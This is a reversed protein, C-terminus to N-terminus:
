EVIQGRTVLSEFKQQERAVFKNQRAFLYILIAMGVIFVVDTNRLAKSDVFIRIIYGITVVTLSLAYNGCLEKLIVLRERRRLWGKNNQAVRLFRYEAGISRDLSTEGTEPDNNWVHIKILRVLSGLQQLIMGFALGFGYAIILLILVNVSRLMRQVPRHDSSFMAFPIIFALLGPIVKAAIDRLLFHSYLSEVLESLDSM